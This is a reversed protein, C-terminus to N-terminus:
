NHRPSISGLKKYLDLQAESLRDPNYIMVKLYLDGRRGSRDRYGKGAIRIYNGTQIGAPVKVSIAGDLSNFRIESGLAAEWPYLAVQSELDLGKLEFGSDKKFEVRLYLDGNKGGNIGPAGQGALKIKEGPKIGAPIKLSITKEGSPTRISIRKDAGSFGEQPAIELLAERDEGRMRVNGGFRGQRGTFGGFLDETGFSGFPSGSGFIMNFFDSFASGDGHRFEYRINNGFGYRSPDFDAGNYFQGERGFQDYIKRKKEDGLAEYAENIEKFKEEAAKDGPHADPHYKKALKRYAKKIEEQSANRDVGLIEYYDRYKM